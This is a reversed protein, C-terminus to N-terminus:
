AFEEKCEIIKQCFGIFEVESIIMFGRCHSLFDFAQSFMDRDCFYDLVFEVMFNEKSTM